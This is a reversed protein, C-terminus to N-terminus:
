KCERQPDATLVLIEFMLSSSNEPIRISFSTKGFYSPVSLDHYQATFFHSISPKTDVAVVRSLNVLM